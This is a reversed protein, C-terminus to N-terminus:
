LQGARCPQKGVVALVGESHGLDDRERILLLDLFAAAAQELVCAVDDRRSGEDSVLCYIFRNRKALAAFLKKIVTRDFTNPLAAVQEKIAQQVRYDEFEAIFCNQLFGRLISIFCQMAYPGDEKAVSIVEPELYVYFIM